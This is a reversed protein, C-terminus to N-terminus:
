GAISSASTSRTASASAPASPIFRHGGLEDDGAAGDTGPMRRVHDALQRAVVVAAQLPRQGHDVRGGRGAAVGDLQLGVGGVCDREGAVRGVELDGVPGPGAPRQVVEVGLGERGVVPVRREELAGALAAHGDEGGREIDGGDLQELAEARRGVLDGRELGDVQRQDGAHRRQPLGIIM